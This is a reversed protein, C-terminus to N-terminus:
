KVTFSCTYYLRTKGENQVLNLGADYSITRDGFKLTRFSMKSHFDLGPSRNNRQFFNSLILFVWGSLETKYKKLFQVSEHSLTFFRNCQELKDTCIKICINQRFGLDCTKLEVRHECNKQEGCHHGLELRTKRGVYQPWVLNKINFARKLKSRRNKDVSWGKSKSKIWDGNYLNWDLTRFIGATWNM